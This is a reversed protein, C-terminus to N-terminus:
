ISLSTCNSSDGTNVHANRVMPLDCYRVIRQYVEAELEELGFFVGEEVFTEVADEHEEGLAGGEGGELVAQVADAVNAEEV